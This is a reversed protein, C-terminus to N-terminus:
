PSFFNFVYNKFNRINGIIRNKIDILAMEVDQLEFPLELSLASQSKPTPLSIEPLAIRSLSLTSLKPLNIKPLSIKSLDPFNINGLFKFGRVSDVAYRAEYSVDSFIKPIAIKPIRFGGAYTFAYNASRYVGDSATDLLKRIPDLSPKQLVVERDVRFFVYSLYKEPFIKAYELVRDYGLAFGSTILLMSLAGFLVQKQLRAFSPGPIKFDFNWGKRKPTTFLAEEWPDSKESKVLKIEGRKTEPFVPTDQTRWNVIDLQHQKYQLISEKSVFWDIGVKQCEIKGGRCLQGVYIRNYGCLSAATSASLYKRSEFYIETKEIKNGM